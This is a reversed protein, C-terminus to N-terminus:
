TFLYNSKQKRSDIIKKSYPKIVNISHCPIQRINSFKKFYHMLDILVM